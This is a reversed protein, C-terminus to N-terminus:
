FRGVVGASFAGPGASVTPTVEVKQDVATLVRYTLFISSGAALVVGGIGVGTWVSTTTQSAVRQSELSTIDEPRTAFNQLGEIYATNASSQASLLFGTVALGAGAVVGATAVIAPTRSTAKEEEKATQKVLKEGLLKERAIRELEDRSLKNGSLKALEEASMKINFRQAIAASLRALTKPYDDTPGTVNFAQVVIGTTVDVFRADVRTERGTVMVSGLVVFDAGFKQALGSSSKEDLVAGVMQEKLVKALQTREVLTFGITPLDSNLAEAAGYVMWQENERGSVNVFNMVAVLPNVGQFQKKIDEFARAYEPDSKVAKEYLAKAQDSKSALLLRAELLAKISDAAPARAAKLDNVTDESLWGAERLLTLLVERAGGFPNDKPAAGSTKGLSKGTDGDVLELTLTLGSGDVAYSGHILSGAALQTAMKQANKADTLGAQSLQIERLVKDVNTREMVTLSTYRQLDTTFVEAFGAGLWATDDGGTVQKPPVVAISKGYLVSLREASSRTDIKSLEKKLEQVNADTDIRSLWAIAERDNGLRYHAAAMFWFYERYLNLYYKADDSRVVGLDTKASVVVREGMSIVRTFDGRDYAQLMNLLAILNSYVRHLEDRPPLSLAKGKADYDPREVFLKKLVPVNNGARRTERDWEEKSLKSDRKGEAKLKLVGSFYDLDYQLKTFIGVRM